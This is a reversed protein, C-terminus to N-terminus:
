ALTAVHSSPPTQSGTDTATATAVAPAPDSTARLQGSAWDALRSAQARRPGCGAAFLGAVYQRGASSDRSVPGGCVATATFKPLSRVLLSDRDFEAVHPLDFLFVGGVPGIAAIACSM